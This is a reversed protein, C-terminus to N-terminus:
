NVDNWFNNNKFFNVVDDKLERNEFRESLEQVIEEIDDNVSINRYEALENSAELLKRNVLDQIENLGRGEILKKFKDLKEQGYKDSIYKQESKSVFPNM